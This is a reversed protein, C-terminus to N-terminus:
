PPPEQSLSVLSGGNKGRVNLFEPRRGEPILRDIAFVYSRGHWVGAGVERAGAQLESKDDLIVTFGISNPEFGENAEVLVMATLVRNEFTSDLRTVRAPFLVAPDDDHALPSKSAAWWGGVVVLAIVIFWGPIRIQMRSYPDTAAGASM